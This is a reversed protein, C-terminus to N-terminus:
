QLTQTLGHDGKFVLRDQHTLIMQRFQMLQFTRVGNQVAAM